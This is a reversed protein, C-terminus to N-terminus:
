LLRQEFRRQPGRREIPYTEGDRFIWGVERWTTSCHQPNKQPVVKICQSGAM